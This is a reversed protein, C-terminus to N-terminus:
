IKVYKLTPIGIALVRNSQCQESTITDNKYAQEKM